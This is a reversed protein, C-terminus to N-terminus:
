RELKLETKIRFPNEKILVFLGIMLVLPVLNFVIAPAQERIMEFFKYAVLLLGVLAFPQWSGSLTHQPSIRQQIAPWLDSDHDRRTQRTLMQDLNRLQGVVTRCDQCDALHSAFQEPLMAPAEGDIESLYAQQVTECDIPNM